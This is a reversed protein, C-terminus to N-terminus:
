EAENIIESKQNLIELFQAPTVIKVRRHQKLDLLHQNGSVLYDAGGEAACALVLNDPPDQPILNEVQHVVIMRASNRHRNIFGTITEEDLNYKRQIHRRHLADRAEDLIAECTVLEFETPRALIQAPKGVPKILASVFVNADLVIAIM